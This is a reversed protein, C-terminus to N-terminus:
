GVADLCMVIEAVDQAVGAAVILADGAVLGREAERRLEGVGPGIEGPHERQVAARLLRLLGGAAGDLMVGGVGVGVVVQAARQHALAAQALGLGRQAFGEAQAGVEGQRVAVDQEAEIVPVVQGGVGDEGFVLFPVRAVGASQGRCVVAVGQIAGGASLQTDAVDGGIKAGVGDGQEGFRQQGRVVATLDLQEAVGFDGDFVGGRLAEPRQRVMPAGRDSATIRRHSLLDALVADVHQHFEGAVGGAVAQQHEGALGGRHLHRVHDAVAARGAQGRDVREQGVVYEGRGAGFGHEGLLQQPQRADRQGVPGRLAHRRDDGQRGEGGAADGEAIEAARHPQVVAHDRGPAVDQVGNGVRAQHEVARREGLVGAAFVPHCPEGGIADAGLLHVHGAGARLRAGPLRVAGDVDREVRERVVGAGGRDLRQPLADGDQGKGAAGGDAAEACRDQVRHPQVVPDGVVDIGIDGSGDGRCGIEAGQRVQALCQARAHRCRRQEVRGAQGARHFPGIPVQPVFPPLARHRTQMAEVGSAIARGRDRQGVSQEGAIRRVGLRQVHEAGAGVIGAIRGGGGRQQRACRCPRIDEGVKAHHLARLAVEFRRFLRQSPRQREIRVQQRRHAIEAVRQQVLPAGRFRFGHQGPRHFARGVLRPQAAAQRERHQGPLVRGAGLRLKPLGQGQRRVIGFRVLREGGQQRLAAAWHLCLM